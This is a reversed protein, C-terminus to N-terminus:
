EVYDDEDEGNEEREKQERLTRLMFVDQAGVFGLLLVAVPAVYSPLLFCGIVVLATIVITRTKTFPHMMRMRLCSFGCVIMAPMVALLMNLVMVMFLATSSVFISCLAYLSATLMYIVCTVKTPYIVYQSARILTEGYSLKAATQFATVAVYALTQLAFLLVGPLIMKVLSVAERLSKLAVSILEAVTVGRSEYIAVTEEPLAAYSARVVEELMAYIDEFTEDILGQVASLSLKNGSALYWIFLAIATLVLLVGTTMLTATSKEQRKRICSFVTVATIISAGGFLLMLTEMGSAVFLITPLVAAELVAFARPCSFFLVALVGCAAMLLVLAPLYLAGRFCIASALAFLCYVATQFFPKASVTKNTKENM